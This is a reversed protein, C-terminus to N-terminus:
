QGSKNSIIFDVPLTYYKKSFDINRPLENHKVLKNKFNSKVQSTLGDFDQFLDEIDGSSNKIEGNFKLVFSKLAEINKADKNPIQYSIKAIKLNNERVFKLREYIGIFSQLLPDFTEENKGFDVIREASIELLSDEQSDINVRNLKALDQVSSIRKIEAEEISASNKEQSVMTLICFISIAALLTLNLYYTGKLGLYFKHFFEIKPMTFRLVKKKNEYFCKSIVLDLFASDDPLLGDFGIEKAVENPTYNVFNLEVNSIKTIRELDNKALINIVEFESIKLDPHLRKLYEFTSYIDHEYKELDGSNEFNYDVTRTFIMGQSSFVMQRVQSARNRVIMCYIQNRKANIKSRRIIGSKLKEFLAVSEIPLMYIGALEGPLELLFKIWSTINESLPASIFLTEWSKREKLKSHNKDDFILYNSVSDNERSAALDRKIIQKLDGKKVLPYNKKRYIQDSTDLLIYMPASKIKALTEKVHNQSKEDLIDIFLKSLTKSGSYASVVTGHEGITIIVAKQSFM